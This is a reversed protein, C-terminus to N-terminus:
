RGAPPPCATAPIRKDCLRVRDLFAAWRALTADSLPRAEIDFAIGRWARAVAYLGERGQIAKFMAIEGLNSEANRGCLMIQTAAPYGSEVATQEPSAGIPQCVAHYNALMTELFRGPGLDVVGQFIQVQIMDQWDDGSQGPPVYQVVSLGREKRTGAVQWDLPPSVLLMEGAGATNGQSWAQGPFSLLALLCLCHRIM